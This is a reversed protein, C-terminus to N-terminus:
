KRRRNPSVYKVTEDLLLAEQIIEHLLAEQIEAVSGWEIGSVQTRDKFDLIGQANSLENGRLFCLEMRDGKKPSLYCIWSKRYYFPVRYRIKCTVHPQAMMLDHIYLMLAQQNDEKEFIFAEVEEIM